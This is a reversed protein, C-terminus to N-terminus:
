VGHQESPLKYSKKGIQVNEEITLSKHARKKVKAAAM